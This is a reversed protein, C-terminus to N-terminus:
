AGQSCGSATPVIRRCNRSETCPFYLAIVLTGRCDSRRGRVEQLIETINFEHGTIQFVIIRLGVTRADDNTRRAGHLSDDANRPIFGDRVAVGHQCRNRLARTTKLVKRRCAIAGAREIAHRFEAALPLARFVIVARNFHMPNPRPQLSRRLYQVASVGARGHAHQTADEGALGERALQASVIRKRPSRHRANHSRKRLHSCPDLRACAFPRWQFNVTTRQPRDMVPGFHRTRLHFRAQQKRSQKGFALRHDLLRDARAIM